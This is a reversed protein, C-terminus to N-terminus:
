RGFLKCANYICVEMYQGFTKVKSIKLNQSKDREYAKEWAKLDQKANKRAEEETKGFRKIRKPAGTKSDPNIYKSQIICEWNGNSLLRTSGEGSKAKGMFKGRLTIIFHYYFTINCINYSMVFCWEILSHGCILHHKIM